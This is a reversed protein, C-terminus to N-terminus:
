NCKPDTLFMESKKATIQDIEANKPIFRVSTLFIESLDSMYRDYQNRSVPKAENALLNDVFIKRIIKCIMTRDKLVLIMYPDFRGWRVGVNNQPSPRQPNFVLDVEQGAYNFM